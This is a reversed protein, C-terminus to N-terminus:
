EPFVWLHSPDIHVTVEEGVAFRRTSRDRVQLSLGDAIVRYTLTGGYYVADEIRGSFRNAGQLPGNPTDIDIHEPRVTAIAEQGSVHHAGSVCHLPGVASALTSADRQVDLRGPILNNTGMFDAVRRTRPRNFIEEPTGFQVLRGDFMVGIRDALEIAEVQDHTVFLTTIGLQRQLRTIFARMEERLKADLNSLPEDMLLVRPDTIVTRAIAVRQQQGGSLQSPFRKALDQLQVVELVEAVKREIEGASARRMRLGFSVNKAVNMHPFLVYRQFVMGINRRETPVGVVSEGDFLVDGATPQELGAVMRLTTTKGCGSPGLLAVLSGPAVTLDIHDVATFDDFEKVLDALRLETV